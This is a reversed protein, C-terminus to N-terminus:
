TGVARDRQEEVTLDVVREVGSGLEFSVAVAKPRGRIGLDHKRQVLAQPELAHQLAEIAHKRDRDSVCAHADDMQEAIPYADLREIEHLAAPGQEKRRLGLRKQRMGRIPGFDIRRLDVLQERESIDGALGRQEFAYTLDPGTM